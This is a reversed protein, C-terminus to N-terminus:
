VIYKVMNKRIILHHFISRFEVIYFFFRPEDKLWPERYMHAIHFNIVPYVPLALLLNKQMM